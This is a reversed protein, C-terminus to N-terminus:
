ATVRLDNMAADAALVASKASPVRRGAWGVILFKVLRAAVPMHRGVGNRGSM